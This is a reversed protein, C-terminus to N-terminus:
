NKIMDSYSECFREEDACVLLKDIRDAVALPNMTEEFEYYLPVFLVKANGHQISFFESIASITMYTFGNEPNRYQLIADGQGSNDNQILRLGAAKFEPITTAWGMACGVTQCHNPEVVKKYTNVGTKYAEGIFSFPDVSEMGNYMGPNAINATQYSCMWHDLNFKKKEIMELPFSRLFDRLIILRERNM